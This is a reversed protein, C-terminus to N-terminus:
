GSLSFHPSRVKEENAPNELFQDRHWKGVRVTTSQWIYGHLTISEGYGHRQDGEWEGEYKGGYEDKYYGLGHREGKSYQGVYAQGHNWHMEGMGHREKKVFDGAYFLRWQKDTRTYWYIGLGDECNHGDECHEYVQPRGHNTYLFCRFATVAPM